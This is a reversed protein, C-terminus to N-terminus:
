QIECQDLDLTSRGKAQSLGGVICALTLEDGVKAERVREKPGSMVARVRGEPALLFLPEAHVVKRGTWAAGGGHAKGEVWTEKLLTKAELVSVILIPKEDYDYNAAVLDAEAAALVETPAVPRLPRACASASVVSLLALLPLQRVM